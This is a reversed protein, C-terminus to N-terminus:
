LGRRKFIPPVTYGDQRHYVYGCIAPSPEKSLFSRHSKVNHSSHDSSHFVRLSDVAMLRISDIEETKPWSRNLITMNQIYRKHIM